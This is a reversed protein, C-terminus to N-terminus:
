ESCNQCMDISKRNSLIRKRFSLAKDNNWLEKVSYKNLNGYSFDANKDFCCPLLEGDTTIVASQWMRLCRNHLKKKLEWNGNITKYRSYKKITPILETKETYNYIQATKITIKQVKMKQAIKKFAEIEHENHRFVIMQLEIGPFRSNQAKKEANIFEIAQLTKNLNGGVRYTEYTEQTVGDLSIIIKKLGSKVIKSAVTQDISQGNTSTATYINKTDAYTIMDFITPSLFPEGQFYILLYLLTPGVEDIVRKYLDFDMLKNARVISDSGLACEPCRLQCIAAPEISLSVPMGSVKRSKSINSIAYSVRNKLLNEIKNITVKHLIDAKM